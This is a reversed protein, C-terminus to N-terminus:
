FVLRQQVCADAATDLNVPLVVVQPVRAIDFALPGHIAVELQSHHVVVLGVLHAVVQGVLVREVAGARRRWGSFAVGDLPAVHRRLLARLPGRPV